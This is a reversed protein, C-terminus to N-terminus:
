IMFILIVINLTQWLNRMDDILNSNIKDQKKMIIM